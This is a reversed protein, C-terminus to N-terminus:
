YGNSDKMDFLEEYTHPSNDHKVDEENQKKIQQPTTMFANVYKEKLEEYRSEANEARSVLADRQGVVQEFDGLAVVDASEVGEPMEDYYAYPM